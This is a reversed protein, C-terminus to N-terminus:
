GVFYTLIGGDKSLYERVVNWLLINVGDLSRALPVLWRSRNVGDANSAAVIIIEGADTENATKTVGGMVHVVYM